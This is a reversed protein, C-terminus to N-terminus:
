FQKLLNPLEGDLRELRQKKTNAKIQGRLQRLRGSTGAL